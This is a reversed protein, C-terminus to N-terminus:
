VRTESNRPKPEAPRTRRPAIAAKALLQCLAERSLETWGQPIPTLRRIEGSCQISLWGEHYPAPLTTRGSTARSPYVPFADWQVGKDDFFIRHRESRSEASEQQGGQLRQLTTIVSRAAERAVTLSEELRLLEASDADAVDTECAEDLAAELAKQAQELKPRLAEVKEEPMTRQLLDVSVVPAVSTGEPQIGVHDYRQGRGARM